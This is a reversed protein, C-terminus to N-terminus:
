DKPGTHQGPKASLQSDPRARANGERSLRGLALARATDSLPDVRAELHDLWKVSTFCERGPVILRAPGGHVDPVREDGLWLALLSRRADEIALPVSYEGASAQIWRAQPEVKALDLIAALPIGKWTLGPVSWGELCAFDDVLVQQALADLDTQRLTLPREVRGDVRLTESRADVEPVAHVPLTSRMEAERM